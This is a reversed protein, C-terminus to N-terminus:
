PAPVFYVDVWFNHTSSQTPQGTGYLYTGGNAPTSLPGSATPDTLGGLNIAYGGNPAYYTARYEAGPTVTVPQSFGVRQWGNATENAFTATALLAGGSSWLNAQHTGTNGAGKYFRMGTITGAQSSSFRVGVQLPGPDNWTTNTPVSDMAFLSLGTPAPAPIPTPDTRYLVDVFYNTANWSSTPFGGGAGYRYLGNTTAGATLPGITRATTFYRPTSSYHGQPALYSVVYRQGASLAVPSALQATQWGSDTENAFTVAALAQGGATWLTGTHTGVNGQGKFFRIAIVSGAQSSSFSVGLEVPSADGTAAPVSPTESGFLTFTTAAGTTDATTFTWSQNSLKAGDSSVVGALSVQIDAANPLAATARLTITKRDASLSTTGAISAGQSTSSLSYGDAVAASLQVSISSDAPVGLAGSAPSRSVISIPVITRDFIVDVLYNTSSQSGPFGAAYTFAGAGSAVQLPGRTFGSGAFDGLTASYKGVNTRYAAVYITGPTVTVPQDFTVSQWGASSEAAFTAQALQTGGSTWLSGVHVGTNDPGKYFKVGTVVGVVTASFRIGLTVANNDNIQLISPTTGDNYLSCPCVGEAAPPRVTTFRWSGGGTLPQGGTGLASLTVLYKVFGSLPGSPQFTATRAGSDYNMAGSVSAGLPDVVTFSISNPDAPRSFQASISTTVPVSTSDPLPWQNTAVLPSADTTVFVADVFYNAGQYSNTPFEGNTNYVGAPVAGFGGAVTLPGANDARYAWYYTAAAYRGKPANYSVVYVRGTQVPVTPSFSATQWGSASENAFTVTALLAGSADWLSGTHVGLNATSKYFRVGSVFGDVAPSFRLGLEVASPDGSDAVAPVTNGFITYPSTSNLSFTTPTAAFNASDDVARILVAQSGTGHQLYVYSWNATGSALRWTGGGDTSVEVGAVVGGVDDATGTLTVSTGNPVATGALPSSVTVRPPTSDTSATAPKLTSDLTSPQARMDALLNVQAQQMRLDAPAGDGDHTQDLGWTWQISGASFVLAGSPARYLTLHHTTTGPAVTSGFDQLYQPVAGATTSLRILGSQRFGNDVDENSEYGITSQALAQSTGAPLQDLGTNRWLRLKGEQSSVTVPLDTFNSMYMTGTLNNEPLGAGNAQSAFRPDRWTGTWEPSPDIKANGRTEKYSVLTRYPTASGDVSPEYRTRWYVENGSLFQLNVGAARAAEVNARQRGSWYEDHGVSLFVKHNLLDSGFRDTDVGSAYTVSYGNKELFRVLPFENSFYFDRGGPGGRTAFPRNYSLKYARGNAAGEYFSSGGYTNYAQWTPDSTQFLVDARSARDRVVFTIHSSGGTDTRTLLAVYVGSVADAPVNWSASLAWSGCDYLETAVNSICAPQRQPLAASPTVAAIKRAGLGQYWGTRFVEVTYASANTDIKFDIRSGVNVSIDTSFGQITPDGAGNIDWVSPAAGPKSNECTIQNATSGCPDVANAPAINITTLVVAVLIMSLGSALTVRTRSSRGTRPDAGLPGQIALYSRRWKM